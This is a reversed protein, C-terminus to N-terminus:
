WRKIKKTTTKDFEVDRIEIDKIRKYIPLDRNIDKILRWIHKEMRKKDMGIFGEFEYNPFIEALINRGSERVIVEEVEDLQQILDELEEPHINKGNALIILNKKRGTIFLFGDEDLYGIDGTRFWGDEDLVSATIDPKGYYGNMVIPGRVCIEGEGDENEEIIKVEVGPVVQGVSGAKVWKNRNLAVIPSCETIGYGEIITIGFNNFKQILDANLAAGGSVLLDLKGGFADLIQKFVVRRADIGVKRAGNVMKTMTAILKEKGQKKINSTINKYFSEVFLPVVCIFEPKGEQIDRLVYKLESNIFCMKGRLITSIVTAGFGYTHHLPLVLVSDGNILALKHGNVVNYTLSRHSLEVGKALGTTGSTFIIACTKPEDIEAELYELEGNELIERGTALIGPLDFRMNIFTKLSKTKRTRKFDDFMDAYSDSYIIASAGSEELINRLGDEHLDKDLPVIVNGGNVVAFYSVLWDYSNEGIVAIRPPLEGKKASDPAFGLRYLATGLSDVDQKFQEFTKKTVVTGEFWAFATKEGYKVAANGVLDRLNTIEDVSYLPYNRMFGEGEVDNRAQGLIEHM